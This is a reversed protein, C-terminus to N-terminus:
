PKKTSNSRMKQDIWPKSIADSISNWIMDKVLYEM